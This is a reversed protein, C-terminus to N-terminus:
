EVHVNENEQLRSVSLYDFEVASETDVAASAYGHPTGDLLIPPDFGV